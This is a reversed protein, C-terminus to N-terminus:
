GKMRSKQAPEEFWATCRPLVKRIRATGEPTASWVWGGTHPVETVLSREHCNDSGSRQACCEKQDTSFACCWSHTSLQVRWLLQLLLSTRTVSTGEEIGNGRISALQKHRIWHNFYSPANQSRPFDSCSPEEEFADSGRPFRATLLGYSEFAARVADLWKADVVKHRNLVLQTM